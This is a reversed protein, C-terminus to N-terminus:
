APNTGNEIPGEIVGKFNRNATDTIDFTFKYGGAIHEVTIYGSAMNEEVTNFSIKSDSILYDNLGQAWPKVEYTGEPCVKTGGSHRIDFRAELSGDASIATFILNSTDQWNKKITSWETYSDSITTDGLAMGEMEGTYNLSVIVNGATFSGVISISKKDTDVNVTFSAATIDTAESSNNRYSSFGNNTYSNTLIGGNEVSYTGDNLRNINAEPLSFSLITQMDGQISHHEVFVVNWQKGDNKSVAWCDVVEFTRYEFDPNYTNDFQKVAVSESLEGYTVTIIGDRINETENAAVAYAVIGNAVSNITIWEAETTAAVETGEVANDVHYAIEGDGGEAQFENDSSDIVLVPAPAVYESQKVTVSFSLPGYEATIKGERADGDNAAVLFSITGDNAKLNSIWAVNAKVSVEVGQIPNELKYTIEGITEECTYELTDTSTLEFVPTSPKPEEQQKAAQKVAVEFSLADYAVVIKTERADGDNAAVTFTITDGVVPTSVWNAECTATLEVGEKANQLTYTITGEDGEATFEMTAESTLTLVPDKVPAAPEEKKECSAVVFPLALLLYFLKKM